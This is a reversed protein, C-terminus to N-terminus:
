HQVVRQAHAAPSTHTHKLLKCTVHTIKSIVRQRSHAPWVPTNGASGPVDLAWTSYLPPPPFAPPRLSSHLLAAKHTHTYAHTRTYMEYRLQTCPSRANKLGTETPKPSYWHSTTITHFNDVSYQLCVATPSAAVTLFGQDRSM